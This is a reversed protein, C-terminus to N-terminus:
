ITEIEVPALGSHIGAFQTLKSLSFNGFEITPSSAVIRGIKNTRCVLQLFAESESNNEYDVVSKNDTEVIGNEVSIYRKLKSDIRTLYYPLFTVGTEIHRISSKGVLPSVNVNHISIAYECSSSEALRAIEDFSLNDESSVILLSRSNLNQGCFLKHWNDSITELEFQNLATQRSEQSASEWAGPQSDISQIIDPIQTINSYKIGLEPYGDVAFRRGITTFYMQQPFLTVVGLAKADNLAYSFTEGLSTFILYASEGLIRWYETISYPPVVVKKEYGDFRSDSVLLDLIENISENNKTERGEPAKVFTIYKRAVNEVTDQFLSPDIGLEFEQISAQHVKDQAYVERDTRATHRLLCDGYYVLDFEEPSINGKKVQTSWTGETGVIIKPYNAQSKRYKLLDVTFRISPLSAVSNVVILDYQGLKGALEVSFSDDTFYTIDFFEQLSEVAKLNALTLRTTSNPRSSWSSNKLIELFNSKISDNLILTRSFNEHVVFAITRITEM